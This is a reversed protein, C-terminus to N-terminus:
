IEEEIIEIFKKFYLKKHLLEKIVQRHSERYKDTNSYYNIDDTLQNIRSRICSILDEIVTLELKKKEINSLDINTTFKM